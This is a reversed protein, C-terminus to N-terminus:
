EADDMIQAIARGSLEMDADSYGDVAESKVVSDGGLEPEALLEYKASLAKLDEDSAGVEKYIKLIDAHIKEVAAIDKADTPDLESFSFVVGADVAEPYQEEIIGQVLAVYQDQIGKMVISMTTRINRATTLETGRADLLSLPFGLAFAIERNLRDLMTNLMEPNLAQASEMIKASITDPKSLVGNHMWDTELNNLMTQMNTKFATYLVQQRAYETPNSNEMNSDPPQPVGDEEKTSHTFMTNPSVVLAVLNPFHMFILHKIFIESLCATISSEGSENNKIEVIDALDVVLDKDVKIHKNKSAENMGGKIYWVKQAATMTSLPNEWDKRIKVNQFLYYESSNLPNVYKQVYELKQVSVIPRAETKTTTEEVYRKQFFTSGEKKLDPMSGRLCSILDLDTLMQKINTLLDKHENDDNSKIRQKGLITYTQVSVILRTLADVEFAKERNTTTDEIMRMESDIWVRKKTIKDKTNASSVGTHVTEASTVRLPTIAPM